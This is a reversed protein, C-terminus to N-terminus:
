WPFNFNGSAQQRGQEAVQRVVRLFSEDLAQRNVSEDEEAAQDDFDDYAPEAEVPRKVKSPSFLPALLKMVIRFAYGVNKILSQLPNFTSLPAISSPTATAPPRPTAAPRTPTTATAAVKAVATTANTESETSVIATTTAAFTTTEVDAPETTTESESPLPNPAACHLLLALVVCCISLKNMERSFNSGFFLV